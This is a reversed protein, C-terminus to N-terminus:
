FLSAQRPPPQRQAPDADVGGFPRLAPVLWHNVDGFDADPNLWEAIAEEALVVPMRDHVRAISPAAACTLLVSHADDMLGAMALPGDAAIRTKIKRGGEIRWEFWASAPIVCRAALLPQFMRKAAVEEARANIIPRSAWKAALGWRRVVPENDYCILLIPDTPRIEGWTAARAVESAQDIDFRPLVASRETEFRSCM